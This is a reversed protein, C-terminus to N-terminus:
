LTGSKEKVYEIQDPGKSIDYYDVTESLLDSIKGGFIMINKQNETLIISFAENSRELSIPLM